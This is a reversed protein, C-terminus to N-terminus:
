FLRWFRARDLLCSLESPAVVGVAAISMRADADAVIDGRTTVSFVEADKAETGTWGPETAWADYGSQGVRLSDM